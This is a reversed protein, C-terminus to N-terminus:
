YVILIILRLYVRFPDVRRHQKECMSCYHGLSCLCVLNNFIEYVLKSRVNEFTFNSYYTITTSALMCCICSM